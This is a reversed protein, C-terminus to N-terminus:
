SKQESWRSHSRCPESAYADSVARQHKGAWTVRYPAGGVSDLYWKEPRQALEELNARTLHTASAVTRARSGADVAALAKDLTLDPVCKGDSYMLKYRIETNSHSYALADQPTPEKQRRSM